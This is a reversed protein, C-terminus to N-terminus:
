PRVLGSTGERVVIRTQSFDSDKVRLRVCEVLRLGSGYLLSAMLRMGTRLRRRQAQGRSM